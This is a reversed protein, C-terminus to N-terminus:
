RKRGKKGGSPAGEMEISIADSTYLEQQAQAHAGTRCLEVLRKAVQETNM